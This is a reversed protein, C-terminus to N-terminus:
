KSYKTKIFKKFFVEKERGKFDNLFNKNQDTMAMAWELEITLFGGLQNEEDTRDDGWLSRRYPQTLSDRRQYGFVRANGLGRDKLLIPLPAKFWVAM